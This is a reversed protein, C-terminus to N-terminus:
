KANLSVTQTEEDWDVNYNMAEAFFRIPVYTRDDDGLFTKTDMSIFSANDPTIVFVDKDGIVFFFSKNTKAETITVTSQLNSTKGDETQVTSNTNDYKVTCGLYETIFRVPVFTRDDKECIMGMDEPIDVDNGNITIKEATAFARLSGLSMAIALAATLLRKKM